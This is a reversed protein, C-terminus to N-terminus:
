LMTGAGNNPISGLIMLDHRVSLCSWLWCTDARPSLNPPCKAECILADCPNRM